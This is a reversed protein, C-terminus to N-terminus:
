FCMKMSFYCWPFVNAFSFLELRPYTTHRREKLVLVSPFNSILVNGRRKKKGLGGRVGMRFAVFGDRLFFNLFFPPTLFFFM